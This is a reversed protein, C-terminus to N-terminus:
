RLWGAVRHIERHIQRQIERQIERHIERHIELGLVLAALREMDDDVAHADGGDTRTLHEMSWAGHEMDVDM